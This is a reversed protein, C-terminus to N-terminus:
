MEELELAVGRVPTKSLDVDILCYGKGDGFDRKLHDHPTEAYGAEKGRQVGTRM